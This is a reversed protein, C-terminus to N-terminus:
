NKDKKKPLSPLVFIALLLFLWIGGLDLKIKQWISLKKEVEVKKDRYITDGVAVYKYITDHKYHYEDKGRNLYKYLYQTHWREKYFTDGVQKIFISDHLWVSDRKLLSDLRVLGESRKSSTSDVVNHRTAEKTGVSSTRCGSMLFLTLLVVQAVAVLHLHTNYWKM